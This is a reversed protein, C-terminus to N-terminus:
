NVCLAVQDLTFTLGDGVAFRGRDDITFDASGREIRDDVQGRVPVFYGEVSNNSGLFVIDRVWPSDTRVILSIQFTYNRGYEPETLTARNEPGTPTLRAEGLILIFEFGIEVVVPTGQIAVTLTFNSANFAAALSDNVTGPVALGVFPWHEDDPGVSVSTLRCEGPGLAFCGSTLVSSAVIVVFAARPDQKRM